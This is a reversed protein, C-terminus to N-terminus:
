PHSATPIFAGAFFRAQRRPPRLQLEMLWSFAKALGFIASNGYIFYNRSSFCGSAFLGFADYYKAM